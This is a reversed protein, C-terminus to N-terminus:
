VFGYDAGFSPHKAMLTMKQVLNAAYEDAKAAGFQAIGYLYIEILDREAAQTLDIKM